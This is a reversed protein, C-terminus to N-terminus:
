FYGAECLVQFFWDAEADTFLPAYEGKSAIAEFSLELHNKEKLQDFLPSTMGKKSWNKMMAVAGKPEMQKETFATDLGCQLKAKTCSQLLEKTFKQELKEM